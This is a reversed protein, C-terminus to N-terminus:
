RLRPGCKPEPSQIVNCVDFAEVRTAGRTTRFPGFCEASEDYLRWWTACDTDETVAEAPRRAVPGSAAAAARLAGSAPAAPRAAAASAARARAQDARLDAARQQEPSLEYQKSDTCVALKRYQDPVQESLHTRGSDDKWRCIPTAGLAPPLLALMVAVLPALALGSAGRRPMPRGLDQQFISM